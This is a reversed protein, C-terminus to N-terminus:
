RCCERFTVVCFLIISFSVIYWAAHLVMEVWNKYSVYQSTIEFTSLYPPFHIWGYPSFSVLVHVYDMVWLEKPWSGPQRSPSWRYVLDSKQFQRTQPLLRSESFCNLTGPKAFVLLSVILQVSSFLFLAPIVPFFILRYCGFSFGSESTFLM